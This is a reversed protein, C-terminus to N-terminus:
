CPVQKGVDNFFRQNRFMPKLTWLDRETSAKMQDPSGPLFPIEQGDRIPPSTSPTAVKAPSHQKKRRM